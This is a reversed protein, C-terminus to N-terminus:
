VIAKAKEITSNQSASAATIVKQYIKKKEDSSAKKVFNSLPTSAEKKNNPM